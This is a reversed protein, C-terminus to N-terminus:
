HAVLLGGVAGVLGVGVSNTGNSVSAGVGAGVGGVLTAPLLGGLLGKATSELPAAVSTLTTAVPTLATTVPMLATTVPALVTSVPTLLAGGGGAGSLAHTVPALLGAVAGSNPLAGLTAVTGAPQTTSLLAVSVAAPAGTGILNADGLRLNVLQATAAAPLGSSLM